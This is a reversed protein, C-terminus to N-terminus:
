PPSTSPFILRAFRDLYQLLIHLVKRLIPTPHPEPPIKLQPLYLLIPGSLLRYTPQLASPTALSPQAWSIPSVSSRLPQPLTHLPSLWSSEGPYLRSFSTWSRTPYLFPNSAAHSRGITPPLCCLDPISEPSPDRPSKINIKTRGMVSQVTAISVRKYKSTYIECVSQMGFIFLQQWFQFHNTRTGTATAM